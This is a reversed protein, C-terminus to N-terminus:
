CLATCFNSHLYKIIRIPRIRVMPVTWNRQEVLFDKLIINEHLSFKYDDMVMNM